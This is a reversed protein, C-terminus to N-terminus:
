GKKPAGRGDTRRTLVEGRRVREDSDDIWGAGEIRPVEKWGREIIEERGLQRAVGGDSVTPYGQWNRYKNNPHSSNLTIM